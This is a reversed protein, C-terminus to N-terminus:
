KRLDGMMGLSSSLVGMAFVIKPVLTRIKKTNKGVSIQTGKQHNKPTNKKRTSFCGDVSAYYASRADCRSSEWDRDGTQLSSVRCRFWIFVILSPEWLLEGPPKGLFFACMKSLQLKLSRITKKKFVCGAPLNRSFVHRTSCRYSLESRTKELFFPHGWHLGFPIVPYM